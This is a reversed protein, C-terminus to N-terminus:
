GTLNAVTYVQLVDAAHRKNHYPNAKYGDEVARLFRALRVAHLGMSSILGSTHMLYYGLVSM